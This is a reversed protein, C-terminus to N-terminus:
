YGQNVIPKVGVRGIQANEQQSIGFQLYKMRNESLQKVLPKEAMRKQLEQSTQLIQQATQQRLQFNVGEQPIPEIEAMIKVWANQEDEIEKQSATQKDVVIREALTPDITEASIQVLANRDIAGMTDFQTLQTVAQLKKEMFEPSLTDVAFRLSLDYKGQIDDPMIRIEDVNGGTLRAVFEPSLYQQCLCLAQSLAEKWSDLWRNVVCQTYLMNDEQNEGRGFYEEADAIAAQEAEISGQSLPPPQLFGIDDPRTITMQSAPAVLLNLGGRRANVLLPPIVSIQAADNRLDRHVKSEYQNTAVIEPIGRSDFISRSLRERSFLVFPM